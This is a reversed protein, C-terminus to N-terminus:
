EDKLQEMDWDIKDKPRFTFRTGSRCDVQFEWGLRSASSLFRIWNPGERLKVDYSVLSGGSGPATDRRGITNGNLAVEIWDGKGGGDRSPDVSITGDLKGGGSFTQGLIFNRAKFAGYGYPDGPAEPPAKGCGALIALLAVLVRRV